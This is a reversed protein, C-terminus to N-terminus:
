NYLFEARKRSSSPCSTAAPSGSISDAVVPFAFIPKSIEGGAAQVAALAAELDDVLIGALPAATAEAADADLGLDTGQGLTGAYSPGFRTLSWGFATEFFTASAESDTVPLEVYALRATPKSPM